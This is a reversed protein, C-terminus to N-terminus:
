RFVASSVFVRKLVETSVSLGFKSEPLHTLLFFLSKTRYIIKSLLHPPPLPLSLFSCLFEGVSMCDPTHPSPTPLVACKLKPFFSFFAVTRQFVVEAHIRPFGLLKWINLSCASDNEASIIFVHNIHNIFVNGLFTVHRYFCPTTM